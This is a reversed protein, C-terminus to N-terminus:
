VLGIVVPLRGTTGEGRYSYFRDTNCRTCIGCISINEVLVGANCLQDRSLAWFDFHDSQNKYKWFQKPIEKVYNVFEACCPGLSPSIGAQIDLAKCSFTTEMIKITRGILNLISGRWGSHVNATVCRIPDYLLVAQCDAVQMVTIKHKLDTIMVDGVPPADSDSANSHGNNGTFVQIGAGHVQKLFILKKEDVCDSLISRNRKVDYEDDGVDFSVNLSQYPGSSCGGNRDFFGHRIDSFKALNPFQYCTIGNKEKTIMLLCDDISL